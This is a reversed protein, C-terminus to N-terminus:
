ITHVGLRYLQVATADPLRKLCCALKEQVEVEALRGTQRQLWIWASLVEAEDILDLEGSEQVLGNLSEQGGPPCTGRLSTIALWRALGGSSARSCQAVGTTEIVATATQAAARHEGCLQYIDARLLGSAQIIWGPANAPTLQEANISDLARKNEGLMALSWALCYQSRFTRWQASGKPALGISRQSWSRQEEYRGIRGLCMAVNAASFSAREDDGIALATSHAHKFAGLAEDYYGGTTNVCGRVNELTFRVSSQVGARECEVSLDSLVHRYHPYNGLQRGSWAFVAICQGLVVRSELSEALAAMATTATLLKQSWGQDSLYYTLRAAAMVATLATHQGGQEDILAMARCLLNRCM